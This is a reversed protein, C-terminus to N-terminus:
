KALQKVERLHKDINNKTIYVGFSSEQVDTGELLRHAIRDGIHPYFHHGDFYNSLDLTVENPYMFNYVGGFVDVIDRLWREYDDLHGEEVMAYFLEASIPTTFIIFDVDTHRSKFITLYEKYRPNYQYNAGYFEDRFREIKEKTNKEAEETSVVKADAVNSRDYVRLEAVNNDKSMKFNRLSYKFLDLSMLSRIRYFPQHVKKEYNVLSAPRESESISTKFFDMGIIVRRVKQDSNEKAFKLFTDYERISMNNVAYNYAKMGKFSNQNIYTTRSSGLIITDYSFDQFFIQNTKQEREDVTVQHDNFSHSHGYMWYPDIYFNFAVVSALAPVTVLFFIAIFQKAQRM